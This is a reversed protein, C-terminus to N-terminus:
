TAFKQKYIGELGVKHTTCCSICIIGYTNKGKDFYNVLNESPQECIRCKGVVKHESSGQNFAITERGDFVVLKGEFFTNPFKEMFTVIGNELQYVERFGHKILLGSATECRVGGTCVTVVTKNKLNSISKIARPVDRFHGLGSPWISNKFNGIEYEFDNRMDIVYFKKNSRYWQYLEEASLHKGTLKNLPGFDKNAIGTTVIEPRVRVVLKKFAKGTGRSKKWNIDAFRKDKNMEEIYQKVNVKTGEVTGNIGEAAILIRGKLNLKECLERQQRMLKAPQEINTYKYFLLVVYEM